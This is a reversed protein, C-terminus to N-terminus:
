INSLVGLFMSTIFLGFCSIYLFSYFIPILLLIIGNYKKATNFTNLIIIYFLRIYYAILILFSLIFIVNKIPTIMNSIFAIPLLLIFISSAGFINSIFTQLNKDDKYTLAVSAVTAIISIKLMATIIGIGIFSFLMFIIIIINLKYDNIYINSLLISALSLIFILFSNKLSINTSTLYEPKTLSDYIDKHLTAKNM